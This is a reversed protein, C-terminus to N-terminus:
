QCTTCTTNNSANSDSFNCRQTGPPSQLSTNGSGSSGSASARVRRDITNHELTYTSGQITMKGKGTYTVGNCCFRYDGTATNILIRNQANSDDQLCINFVCVQFTCSATNASADTVTCTVTSCGLPFTSGSPPNCSPTGVGTCNDSASANAYTVVASSAGFSPAVATVNAPCTIAPAQTDNVTVTFSCSASNGSADSVSCSVTTTGKAFTSGSPPACAPTGVGACNDSATANSYTVVASCQNPDTSTVVNAPCSITPAQTDNVTVTFSCSLQNGCPDTVSCNVATAGKLFTSGSAPNCTPTGVGACYDSVSPTAYTLAASCQGPDTNKTVNNPCTIAPPSATAAATGMGPSFYSGKFARVVYGFTTASQLGSDTFSTVNPAVTFTQQPSDREIQFGDENTSNDNWALSVSFSTFGTIRLNSIDNVPTTEETAILTGGAHVYEKSLSM